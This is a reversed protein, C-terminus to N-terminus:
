CCIGSDYLYIHNVVGFVIIVKEWFTERFFWFLTALEAFLLIFSWGFNFKFFIWDDIALLTEHM